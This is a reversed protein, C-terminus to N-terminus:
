ALSRLATAVGCRRWESRVALRYMNGRWGDWGAILTGVHEGDAEALLLAGADAEFLLALGEATEPTSSHPTRSTEWLGLVSPVDSREAPRVVVSAV